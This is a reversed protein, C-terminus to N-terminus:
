CRVMKYRPVWALVYRWNIPQPGNFVEVMNERRGFQVVASDTMNVSFLYTGLFFYVVAPKDPHLFALRPM